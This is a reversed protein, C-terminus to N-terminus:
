MRHKIENIRKDGVMTLYIPLTMVNLSNQKTEQLKTLCIASLVIYGQVNPHLETLCSM